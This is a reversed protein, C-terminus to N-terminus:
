QALVKVKKVKPKPAILDLAKVILLQSDALTKILRLVDKMDKELKIITDAQQILLEKRTPM